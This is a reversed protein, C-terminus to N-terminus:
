SGVGDIDIAWALVCALFNIWANRMSKAHDPTEDAINDPNLCGITL